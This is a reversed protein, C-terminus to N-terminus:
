IKYILDGLRAYDLCCKCKDRWVTMGSIMRGSDHQTACFYKSNPLNINWPVGDAFSSGFNGKECADEQAGPPARTSLMTAPAAAVGAILAGLGFLFQNKLLM